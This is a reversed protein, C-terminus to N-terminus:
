KNMENLHENAEKVSDFLEMKVLLEAPDAGTLEAAQLAADVKAKRAERGAGVLGGGVSSGVEAPTEGDLPALRVHTFGQQPNSGKIRVPKKKSAGLRNMASYVEGALKRDRSPDIGGLASFDAVVDLVMRATLRDEPNDTFEFRAKLAAEVDTTEALFTRTSEELWEPFDERDRDFEHGAMLRAWGRAAERLYYSIVQPHSKWEERGMELYDEIKKFSAEVDARPAGFNLGIIRRQIGEDENIQVIDNMIVWLTMGAGVQRSKEHLDRSETDQGLKKLSAEAMRSDSSIENAFAGRSRMISHKTANLEKKNSLIDVEFDSKIYDGLARAAMDGQFSKGSGGSGSVFFFKLPTVAGHLTRGHAQFIVDLKEESGEAITLWMDDLLKELEPDNIGEVAEQKTVKAFRSEGQGPGVQVVLDSLECDPTAKDLDLAHLPDIGILGAQTDVANEKVVLGEVGQEFLLDAAYSSVQKISQGSKTSRALERQVARTHTISNEIKEIRDADEEGVAGKDMKAEIAAAELQLDAVIGVLAKEFAKTMRGFENSGMEVLDKTCLKLDKSDGIEDFKAGDITKQSVVYLAVPAKGKALMDAFFRSLYQLENYSHEIECLESYTLSYNGRQVIFGYDDLQPKGQTKISEEIQQATDGEIMNLLDHATNINNM